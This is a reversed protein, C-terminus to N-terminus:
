GIGKGIWRGTKDFFPSRDWGGAQWILDCLPRLEHAWDDPEGEVQIEPPAVIDRDYSQSSVSTSIPEKALHCGKVGMLSMFIALPSAIGLARLHAVFRRCSEILLKELSYGDVGSVTSGIDDKLTKFGGYGIEVIGTRFLQVYLQWSGGHPGNMTLLGDLNLRHDSNNFEPIMWDDWNLDQVTIRPTAELADIPVIHVFAMGLGSKFNLVTPTTRNQQLREMRFARIRRTLATAGLFLDRVEDMSLDDTGRPRRGTFQRHGKFWVSHPGSLSVAVRLLLVAKGQGNNVPVINVPPRPQITSLILNQLRLIDQDVQNSAIPIINGAIGAPQEDVGFVIDGGGSNAMACVDRLFARRSAHTAGPMESKFDLRQSEEVNESVLEEIDSWTINNLSKYWLM